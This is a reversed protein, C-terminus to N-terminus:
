RFAEEVAQDLDTDDRANVKELWAQTDAEEESTLLLPELSDCWQLWEAIEGSTELLHIEVESGEGWEPPIHAEVRGAIVTGKITNM